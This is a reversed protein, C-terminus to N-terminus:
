RAACAQGRDAHAGKAKADAESMYAGARTKGYFPDGPCHYVNSASNLWVLGPAGGPAVPRAAAAQAPSLKRAPTAASAPAPMAIPASIAPAPAPMSPYKTGTTSPASEAPTSAAPVPTASLAYWTQVGKHGRCAGSKSAATSYSGDRCIGTTGAPAGAPVDLPTQAGAFGICLLCLTSLGCRLARM